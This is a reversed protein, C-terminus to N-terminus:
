TLLKQLLGTVQRTTLHPLYSRTVATAIAPLAVPDPYAMWRPQYDPQFKAKFDLLSRFGYVPELTRSLM